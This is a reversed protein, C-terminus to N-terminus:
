PALLASIEDALTIPDFPKAIIGLAGADMLRAREADSDMATLFIVPVGATAPDAKLRRCVEDGDMDPMLGDLVIADFTVARARALAEAGSAVLEVEFGPGLELAFGLLVRMDEEDDACLLRIM